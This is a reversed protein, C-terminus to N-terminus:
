CCTLLVVSLLHCSISLPLFVLGPLFFLSHLPVCLTQTPPPVSLEGEPSQRSGLAQEAGLYLVTDSALLVVHGGLSLHTAYGSSTEAPVERTPWKRRAEAGQKPGARGFPACLGSLGPLGARAPWNAQKDRQEPQVKGQLSPTGGVVGM